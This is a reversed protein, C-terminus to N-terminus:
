RLDEETEVIDVIDSVGNVPVDLRFVDEKVGLSLDFDGIEPDALADLM